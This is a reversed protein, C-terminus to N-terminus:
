WHNRHIREPQYRDVRGPINEPHGVAVLCVPHISEPLGLLRCFGEIREAVPEIGVWCAGLGSAHAALLINEAAASCDLLWRGPKAIQDDACVLIGAPTQTLFASSTHFTPIQDLLSRENLIIFHWPRANGASPAQMGAKILMQIDEESVPEGTFHRVTRRTFLAEITDM